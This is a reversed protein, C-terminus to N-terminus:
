KIGARHSRQLPHEPDVLHMDFPARSVRGAGLLARNRFLDAPWEIAAAWFALLTFPATSM